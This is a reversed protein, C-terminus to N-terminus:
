KTVKIQDFVEGKANMQKLLLTKGDTEILTFSHIDSVIKTTYPVWNAQPDHKWLDPKGSLSTDYLPAGGRLSTDYLPAGGAGTVIYIIGNPKTNNIGDFKEDLTFKGDVRGEESILYRTGTSDRKPEFKLPVTRQYNHVHGTLVMDIGLQELVPSLLRMQQYNYHAKSSNFGPHHYSVIKWDAKSNRMDDALWQVLTPDLPNTYPNADLCAIHVNGYDFSFNSMRPYRSGVNTKFAKILQENGTPKTVFDTVPGNLPLDNYYFYALGDPTKDFDDGYVDHNGLLMYFPLTNMLPAGKEPSAEKATYYPFFNERYEKELGSRYVNDGTVLVFQPKQQFVQYAIAAQQPTGAGCDGFVAFRTQVKKTRSHYVGSAIPNGKLSVRYAYQTDLKLKPLTARYLYTTKNKLNLKVSTVKTSMMKTAGEISSGLVYEVKYEGPISDTQWILVPQEKTLPSSNGPQLYPPVLLQQADLALSVISLLISLSFSKTPQSYNM